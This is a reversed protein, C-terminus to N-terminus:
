VRGYLVGGAGVDPLGMRGMCLVGTLSFLLNSLLHGLSVWPFFFPVFRRVSPIRPAPEGSLPTRNRSRLRKEDGSQNDLVWPRPQQVAAREM